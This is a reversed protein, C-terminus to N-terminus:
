PNLAELFERASIRIARIEASPKKELTRYAMGMRPNSGLRRRHTLLFNWYLYNFPCATGGTREKVSFSCLSCYDSMRNIYAGSSVYPKSSLGGGDAYLGMGMVNPIMVWEYADLFLTMFWELVARPELGALTAFNSIIMLRQIHHLYGTSLAQRLCRSLCRMATDGSWFFEPLLRHAKLINAEALEPMRLWYVGYIYERWGIVQRIFAEAANLPAHGTEYAHEVRKVLHLPSLLGINLLPSILSHFLLHEQDLMADQYTGFHTLRTVVFDDVWVIADRHTVPLTWAGTEGPHDGFIRNVAVIVESTVTDPPFVRPTPIPTGPPLARRNEPDTSWRGGVPRDGEMLIRLRKRIGRYHQDMRLRMKGRHEEAFHHRDTLVMTTPTVRLPIGLGAALTEADRAHSRDLLEMTVLGSPRYQEVHRQLADRFNRHRGEPDLPYYDVELGRKRLEAAFHRMASFLLVLKRKHYRYLRSREESEIMLVRAEASRESRRLLPALASNDRSLQTAQIWVTEGM